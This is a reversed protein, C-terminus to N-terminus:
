NKGIKVSGSTRRKTNNIPSVFYNGLLIDCAVTVHKPECLVIKNEIVSIGLSEEGFDAIVDLCRQASSDSTLSVGDESGDEDILTAIKKVTNGKITHPNVKEVDVDFMELDLFDQIEKEGADRYFKSLGTFLSNVTNYNRFYLRSGGDYYADVKSPDFDIARSRKQIHAQKLDNSQLIFIKNKIIYKPTIKTFIIREGDYGYLCNVLDYQDQLIPNVSSPSESVDLYAGLLERKDDESLNVYFWEGDELTHFPSFQTPFPIAPERYYDSIDNDAIEAKSDGLVAVSTAEKDALRAFLKM